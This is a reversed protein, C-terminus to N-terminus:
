PWDQLAEASLTAGSRKLVAMYNILAHGAGQLPPLDPGLADPYKSCMASLFLVMGWTEAAKTRLMQQSPTGLMKPVLDAVRTLKEAHSSDYATYFDWLDRRLRLVAIAFYDGASPGWAGGLILRWILLVAFSNAVGLHLTHLIDLALARSPALGFSPAFLPCRHKAIGEESPRWFVVPFPFSAVQELRGVDHLADSPELKDGSKLGLEAFPARLAKGRAGGPRSDYLLLPLLRDRQEKSLVVLVECRRCADEYDEDRNVRHPGLDGVSVGRFRYMGEADSSCCPCPRLGDAWTPLGLRGCFESWDGRINLIAAFFGMPSGGLSQRREDQPLVWQTGDHRRTPFVGSELSAFSWLLFKYVSFFTCWSRCGCRCCLRKRVLTLLHRMGTLMNVLWVGCASDTLSYPLADMYIACPYVVKGPNKTVVPHSFYDPTLLAGHLAEQLRQPMSADEAVESHLAEHAPLTQLTHSSRTLDHKSMALVDSSYFRTARANLGLGREPAQCLAGLESWATPWIECLAFCRSPRGVLLSQLCGGRQHCKHFVLWAPCGFFRGSCKNCCSACAGRRGRLLGGLARGGIQGLQSRCCENGVFAGSDM